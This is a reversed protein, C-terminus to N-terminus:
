SQWRIAYQLATCHEFAFPRALRGGMHDRKSVAEYNADLAHFARIRSECPWLSNYEHAKRARYNALAAQMPTKCITRTMQKAPAITPMAAPNRSNHGGM